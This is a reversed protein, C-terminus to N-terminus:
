NEHGRCAQLLANRHVAIIRRGYHPTESPWLHLIMGDWKGELCVSVEQGTRNGSCRCISVMASTPDVCAIGPIALTYAQYRRGRVEGSIERM